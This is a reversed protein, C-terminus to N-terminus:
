SQHKQDPEVVSRVLGASSGLLCDRAFICRRDQVRRVLGSAIRDWAARRQLFSQAVRRGCSGCHHRGAVLALQVPSSYDKAVAFALGMSRFVCCLPDIEGAVRDLSFGL